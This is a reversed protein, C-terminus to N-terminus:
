FSPWPITLGPILPTIVNEPRPAFILSIVNYFFFYFGIIMIAFSIFIGVTWFGRWFRPSKRGIKTIFKNLRKTRMLAILPFFVYVAEKRKRLLFVLAVILLWFIVSILVWSFWPSNILDSLLDAAM